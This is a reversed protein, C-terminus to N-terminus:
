NINVRVGERASRRVADIVKYVRVADEFTSYRGEDGKAIEAWTAEINGTWDVLKQESVWEKGQILVKTPHFIHVFPLPGEVTIAGDEGDITWVFPVRGPETPPVGRYHLSILAGSTFTGTLAVQDECTRAIKKGTPKGADDLIEAEPYLTAYTASVSAFDGMVTVLGAFFHGLSIDVMSAGCDADAAYLNRENITPGWFGLNPPCCGIVSTGIIRGLAGSKLVEAIKLLAPSSRIQNGIIGQVGKRRALEALEEVEEINKGLPWEVFVRKGAEIAPITAARHESVKISVVVLDVDPDNAIQAYGDQGHYAKVAHGVAKTFKDAAAAASEASRTCLATLKYKSALPAPPLLPAILTNAWAGASASLGIVGLRIPSSPSM